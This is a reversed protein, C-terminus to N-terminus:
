CGHEEILKTLTKPGCIGDVALPPHKRQFASIAARTRPGIIGDIEGPDCGLNRLRAQIGTAGDDPANTVPNLHSLLLPWEFNAVRLTGDDADSPVTEEILGDGRTTGTRRVGAITMEYPVSTMSRGDADRVVIRLVQTGRRLRFRHTQATALEARGAGKDPIVIQDGPYILNPNSRKTRFDANLPHEYITRWNAFGHQQAIRSLCEGQSVTHVKAM